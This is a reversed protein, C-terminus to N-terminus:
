IALEMQDLVQASQQKINQADDVISQIGYVKEDARIWHVLSFGYKAGWAEAGEKTRIGRQIMTCGTLDRPRSKVEKVEVTPNNKM